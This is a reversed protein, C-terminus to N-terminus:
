TFKEDTNLKDSVFNESEQATTYVFTSESIISNHDSIQERREQLNSCVCM